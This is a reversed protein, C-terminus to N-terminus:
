STRYTRGEYDIRVVDYAKVPNDCGKPETLNEVELGSRLKYTSALIVLLSLLLPTICSM